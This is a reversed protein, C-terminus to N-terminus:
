HNMRSWEIYWRLSLIIWETQQAPKRLHTAHYKARFLVEIKWIRQCQLVEPFYLSTWCQEASCLRTPDHKCHTWDEVKSFNQFHKAFMSEGVMQKSFKLCLILKDNVWTLWEVIFRCAENGAKTTYKTKWKWFKYLYTEFYKANSQFLVDSLVGQDGPDRELDKKPGSFIINPVYALTTKHCFLIRLVGRQLLFM